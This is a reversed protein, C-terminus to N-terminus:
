DRLARGLIFGIGIGIMVAPMPHRQILKSVDDAMGSLKAEELYQGSQQITEAVAQSAHGLLGERPAKESLASGWKKIDAGATATLDDAKKGVASATQGAMETMSSATEKAKDMAQGGIDKVKEMAQGGIDKAKEMAQGGVDKAKDMADKGKDMHEKGKDTHGRDDEKFKPNTTGTAM